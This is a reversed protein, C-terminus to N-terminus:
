RDGIATKADSCLWGDGVCVSEDEVLKFGGRVATSIQRQLIFRVLDFKFPLHM